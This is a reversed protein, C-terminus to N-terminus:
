EWREEWTGSGTGTYVNAAYDAKRYDLGLNPQERGPLELNLTFDISSHDSGGISPGIKLNSVLDEESSIVLDM